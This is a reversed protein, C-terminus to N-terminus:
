DTVEAWSEHYAFGQRIADKANGQVFARIQAVADGTGYEADYADRDVNITVTVRVPITQNEERKSM